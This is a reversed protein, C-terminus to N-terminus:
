PTANDLITKTEEMEIFFTSKGETLRDEAGIRTFIKDVPTLVMSEAPVMSGIQALIVALCSQRLLTSKGGMNPGTLLMASPVGGGLVTDNPIFSPATVADLELHSNLTPLKQVVEGARFTLNV